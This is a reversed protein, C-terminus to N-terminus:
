ITLKSEHKPEKLFFTLALIGVLIAGALLQWAISYSGTVDVLYGFLPTGFIAGLSNITIVIGLAAGTQAKGAIEGILAYSVGQFGVMCLGALFILPLVVFLPAAPPLLGLSAYANGLSGRDPGSRDQADRSLAPRQDRRM